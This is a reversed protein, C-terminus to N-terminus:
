KIAGNSPFAIIAAHNQNVSVANFVEVALKAAHRSRDIINEVVAVVDLLLGKFPALLPGSGVVQHLQRRAGALFHSQTGRRNVRHTSAVGLGPLLMVAWIKVPACLLRESPNRDLSAVNFQNAIGENEHAFCKAHEIGPRQRVINDLIASREGLVRSAVPVKIHGNLHFLGSWPGGDGANANIKAQFVKGHQGGAFLDAIGSVPIQKLATQGHTMPSSLFAGGGLQLGSNAVSPSVEVMFERSSQHSFEIENSNSVYAGASQRSRVHGLGYIIRSPTAKSKHNRVLGKPMARGILFHVFSVSRSSAGYASTDGPRSAPCAQILSLPRAAIAAGMVVPIRVGGRVNKESGPMSRKHLSDRSLSRFHWDLSNTPPTM